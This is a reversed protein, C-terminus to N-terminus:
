ATAHRAKRRVPAQGFHYSFGSPGPFMFEHTAPLERGAREEGEILGDLVEQANRAAEEYTEGHTHCGGWEPLTVVYVHDEESWQIIISYRSKTM